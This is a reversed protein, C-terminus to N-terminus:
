SDLNKSPVINELYYKNLANEFTEELDRVLEYGFSNKLKDTGFIIGDPSFKFIYGKNIAFDKINIWSPNEIFDEDVLDILLSEISVNLIRSLEIVRGIKPEQNSTEYKSYAQTSINLKKAIDKQTLGRSERIAKLNQNFKYSM